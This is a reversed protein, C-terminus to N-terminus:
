RLHSRIRDAQLSRTDMSSDEIRTPYIRLLGDGSWRPMVHMHFHAIEQFAGPGNSQWLSLGDPEFAARVARAVRVTASMVAAATEDDLEFVNEVHRRPMVLVHGEHPQRPDVGAFTDDDVYVLTPAASEAWDCFACPAAPAAM